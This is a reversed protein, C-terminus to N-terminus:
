VTRLVLACTAFFVITVSKGKWWIWHKRGSYFCFHYCYLKLVFSLKFTVTVEQLVTAIICICYKACVSHWKDAVHCHLLVKNVVNRDVDCYYCLSLWCPLFFSGLFTSVNRYVKPSFECLTPLTPFCQQVTRWSFFFKIARICTFSVDQSMSLDVMWHSLVENGAEKALKASLFFM